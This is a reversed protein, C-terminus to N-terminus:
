ASALGDILDAAAGVSGYSLHYTGSAEIVDALLRFGEGGHLQYNFANEALQILSEGQNAPLLEDSAGQGFTPFVVWAPKVAAAVNTVSAASPKLHAIKGKHTDLVEPSLVADPYISRILDISENKLSIPRPVPVVRRTAPDFIAHEDSLLQWGRGALVATLTSKGSGPRGPLVVARGDKALVAAHVILWCHMTTAVCWNLGWELMPFLHAMPMPLFPIRGGVSFEVKNKLLSGSGRAARMVVSFDHFAGDEAVPYDAYLTSLPQALRALPTRILFTLPGVRLGLGHNALRYALDDRPIDGLIM